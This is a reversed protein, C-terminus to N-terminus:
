CDIPRCRVSIPTEDDQRRSIHFCVAQVEVVDRQGDLYILDGKRPLASETTSMTNGELSKKFTQFIGACSAAPTQYDTIRPSRM